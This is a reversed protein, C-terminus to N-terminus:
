YGEPSVKTRKNKTKKPFPLCCSSGDKANKRLELNKAELDDVITKYEKEATEINAEKEFIKKQCKRLKQEMKDLFEKCRKLEIQCDMCKDFILTPMAKDGRFSYVSVFVMVGQTKMYQEVHPSAEAIMRVTPFYFSERDDALGCEIMDVTGDINVFTIVKTLSQDDENDIIIDEITLTIECEEDDSDIELWAKIVGTVGGGIAQMPFDHSEVSQNTDTICVRGIHRTPMDPVFPNVFIKSRDRSEYEAHDAHRESFCEFDYM